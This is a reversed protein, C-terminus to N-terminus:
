NHGVHKMLWKALQWEKNNCFPGLIEEEKLIQEDRIKEFSMCGKGFTAGAFMEAPFYKTCSPQPNPTESKPVNKVTATGNRSTWYPEEPPCADNDSDAMESDENHVHAPEAGFPIDMTPFIPNTIETNVDMAFASGSEMPASAVEQALLNYTNSFKQKFAQACKKSCSPDKAYYNNLLRSKAWREFCYECTYTKTM